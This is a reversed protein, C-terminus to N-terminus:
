FAKQETEEALLRHYEAEIYKWWEDLPLLKAGTRRGVRMNCSHCLLRVNDLRTEKCIYYPVIHDVDRGPRGCIQCTYNDRQKVFERFAKGQTKYRGGRLKRM